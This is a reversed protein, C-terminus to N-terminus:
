CSEMGTLFYHSLVALGKQNITAAVLEEWIATVETDMTVGCVFCLHLWKLPSIRVMTSAPSLFPDTHKAFARANATAIAFIIAHIDM